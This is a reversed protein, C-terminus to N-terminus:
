RQARILAAHRARGIPCDKAHWSTAYPGPAGNRQLAEALAGCAEPFLVLFLNGCKCAAARAREHHEAVYNRRPVSRALSARHEDYLACALGFAPLTFRKRGHQRPAAVTVPPIFGATRAYDLAALLRAHQEDLRQLHRLLIEREVFRAPGTSSTIAHLEDVVVGALQLGRIQPGRRQDRHRTM